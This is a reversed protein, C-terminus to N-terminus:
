KELGMKRLLETYRPDSRLFDYVPNVRLWILGIFREEYAKQLWEFAPDKEGLGIYLWTFGISPVYEQNSREKLADLMKLAEDRKGSVAYAYGLDAVPLPYGKTLDVAKQLEVIAEEYMGKQVYADGLLWHIFFNSDIQLTERLQEISQDYQRAHYYTWGLHSNIILSFPDLEQAQKAEAIAEDLRGMALLYNGYWHHATAYSPNLSFARKFEREAGLWDWDYSLKILALSNHTEAFMDDLELAREVAAKARPYAEKTPLYGWAALIHYSDALGAYALAYNPDKEIAQEFYAIAKKLGEETRKNNWFHRGKLYLNYAELNETGQKEIQQKEGALLQVKLAEAVKQAVDSQIAFVDKLEHDYDQSWLHEQTEVDILQTTIRVRDASKRVSGELITGVKLERGIEAIDKRPSGPEVKYKMISTRAIVRFSSIKSLQSIMEETMGDVFYENEADASMNVFPLVAIRNKNLSLAEQVPISVSTSRESQKPSIETKNEVQTAMKKEEAWEWVYLGALSLVAVVVLTEVVLVVQQVGKQRFAFTIRESWVSPEKQWPLVIKYLVMRKRINKLRVKGLKRTRIQNHIQDYVQQSICIGGPTAYPEIRAAINVKDGHVNVGMHVVDGVHLGIRIYIKREPPESANREYLTKQM